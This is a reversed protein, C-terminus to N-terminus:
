SGWEKEHGLRREIASLQQRKGQTQEKLGEIEQKLGRRLEELLKTDTTVNPLDYQKADSSCM